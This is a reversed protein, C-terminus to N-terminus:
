VVESYNELQLKAKNAHHRVNAATMGWLRGIDGSSLGKEKLKIIELQKSGLQSCIYESLIDDMVNEEVNVDSAIIDHYTNDGDSDKSHKEDISMIGYIESPDYEHNISYRIMSTERTLREKVHWRIHNIAHTMFKTGKNEEYTLCAKWLGTAAYQFLDSMEIRHQQCIGKPNNFMKFITEKAIHYHSEFLEDSTM